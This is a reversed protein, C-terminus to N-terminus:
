MKIQYVQLEMGKNLPSPVMFLVKLFCFAVSLFWAPKVRISIRMTTMRKPIRAVIRIGWILTEVWSAL